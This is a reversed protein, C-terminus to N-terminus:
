LFFFLIILINLYCVLAAFYEHEGLSLSGDCAPKKQADCEKPCGYYTIEYDSAAVALAVFATFITFINLLKM